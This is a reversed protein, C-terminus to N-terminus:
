EDECLRPLMRYATDLRTVKVEADKPEEVKALQMKAPTVRLEKSRPIRIAEWEGNTRPPAGQLLGVTSQV